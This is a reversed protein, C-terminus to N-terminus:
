AHGPGEMQRLLTRSQETLDALEAFAADIEEDDDGDAIKIRSACREFKRLLALACLGIAGSTPTPHPATM